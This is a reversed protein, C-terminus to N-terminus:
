KYITWEDSLLLSKREFKATKHAINYKLDTAIFDYLSFYQLKFFFFIALFTFNSIVHM